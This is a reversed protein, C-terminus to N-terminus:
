RQQSVEQLKRDLLNKISIVYLAGSRSNGGTGFLVFKEGSGGDLIQPPYYSERRDPTQMWKLVTGNRGDFIVLRGFMKEELAPDSLEDGGHVALVEPVGDSNLDDIFQAVYVSMLDSQIVHNSFEWLIQGTKGSLAFFM